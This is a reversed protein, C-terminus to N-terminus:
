LRSAGPDRRHRPRLVCVAVAWGLGFALLLPLFVGIGDVDSGGLLHTVGSLASGGAVGALATGAHNRSGPTAVPATAQAFQAAAAGQKGLKALKKVGVKGSGLKSIESATPNGNGMAPPLVNGGSTPVVESYESTGAKGPPAYIKTSGAIAPPACALGGAAVLAIVSRNLRM